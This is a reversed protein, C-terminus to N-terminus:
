RSSIYKDIEDKKPLGYVFWSEEPLTATEDQIKMHFDEEEECNEFPNRKKALKSLAVKAARRGQRLMRRRPSAKREGTTWPADQMPAEAETATTNTGGNSEDVGSSCWGRRVAGAAGSKSCWKGQDSGGCREDKEKRRSRRRRPLYKSVMCYGQYLRM